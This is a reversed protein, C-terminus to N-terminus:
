YDIGGNRKKSIVLCGSEIETINMERNKNYFTTFITDEGIFGELCIDDKYFERAVININQMSISNIQVRKYKSFDINLLETAKM